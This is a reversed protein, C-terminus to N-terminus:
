LNWSSVQTAASRSCANLSDAWLEATNVATCPHQVLDKAVNTWLHTSQIRYTHLCSRQAPSFGQQQQWQPWAGAEWDGGMAKWWTVLICPWISGGQGGRATRPEGAGGSELSSETIYFYSSLASSLWLEASWKWCNVLNAGQWLPGNRLPPTAFFTKLFPKNANAHEWFPELALGMRAAKRLQIQWWIVCM